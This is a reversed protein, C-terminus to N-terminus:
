CSSRPGGRASCATGVVYRALPLDMDIRVFVLILSPSSAVVIEPTVLVM